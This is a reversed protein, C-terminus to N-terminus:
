ARQLGEGSLELREGVKKGQDREVLVVGGWFRDFTRVKGQLTWRKGPM